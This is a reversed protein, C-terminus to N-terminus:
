TCSDVGRRQWEMKYGILRMGMKTMGDLLEVKEEGGNERVTYSGERRRGERRYVLVRM